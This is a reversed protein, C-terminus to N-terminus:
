KGISLYVSDRLARGVSPCAHLATYAGQRCIFFTYLSRVSFFIYICLYVSPWVFDFLCLSQCVSLRVTSSVTLVYPGLLLGLSM